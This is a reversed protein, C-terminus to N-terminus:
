SMSDFFSVTALASSFASPQVADASSMQPAPHVQGPKGIRPAPRVRGRFCLYKWLLVLLHSDCCGHDLFQAVGCACAHHVGLLRQGFSVAVHFGGNVPQAGLTQGFRGLLRAAGGGFAEHGNLDFAAVADRDLNVGLGIEDALVGLELRHHVADGFGRQLYVVDLRQLLGLDVALGNFRRQRVGDGLDALVHRQAAHDREVTFREHGVHVVRCGGAHALDANEDGHVATVFGKALLDGHM